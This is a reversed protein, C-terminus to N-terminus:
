RLWRVLRAYPRRFLVEALTARGAPLITAGRQGPRLEGAEAAVVAEAVLGNEGDRVEARPRVRDFALTLPPGARGDLHLVGGEAPDFLALDLMPVHVLALLRTAPALEFLVDGREVAAGVARDLEGDLVIGDIPSVVELQALRDEVLALESAVRSAELRHLTADGPRGELLAAESRQQLTRREALLADRELRHVDGDLRALVSGVAVRDGVSAEVADILGRFPATVFRREAGVLETEATITRDVPLALVGVSAAVVFLLVASRPVRRRLGAPRGEPAAVLARLWPLVRHLDRDAHEAAGRDDFALVVIMGAGSGRHLSAGVVVAASLLDAVAGLEAPGEDGCWLLPTTAEALAPGVRRLAAAGRGRPDVHRTPVFVPTEVVAGGRTRAVVAERAGYRRSLATGVAAARDGLPARVAVVLDDVAASTRVEDRLAFAAAAIELLAMAPEISAHDASPMLALAAPQSTSLVPAALVVGASPGAPARVCLRDTSAAESAADRLAAEIRTEDSRLSSELLSRELRWSGEPTAKAYAAARARTVAALQHLLGEAAVGDDPVATVIRLVDRHWRALEVVPEVEPSSATAPEAGRASM